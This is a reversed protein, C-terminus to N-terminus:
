SFMVPSFNLLSAWSSGAFRMSFFTSSYRPYVRPVGGVFCLAGDSKGSTPHPKNRIKAGINGLMFCLFSSKAAVAMAIAAAVFALACDNTAPLRLYVMPPSLTVTFASVFVSSFMAIGSLTSYPSPSVAFFYATFPMSGLPNKPQVFSLLMVRGCVIVSMPRAAKQFQLDSSARSMGSATVAMFGATNVKHRLRFRMEAPFRSFLM